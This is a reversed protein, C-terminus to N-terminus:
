GGGLNVVERWAMMVVLKEVVEKINGGGGELLGIVLGGCRWGFVAVLVMMEGNGGEDERVKWRRGIKM